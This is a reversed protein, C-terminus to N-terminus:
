SNLGQSDLNELTWVKPFKFEQSDLVRELNWFERRVRENLDVQLDVAVRVFVCVDARM